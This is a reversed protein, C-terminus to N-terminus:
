ISPDINLDASVAGAATGNVATASVPAPETPTLEALRTDIATAADNFIWVFQPYRKTVYRKVLPLVAFRTQFIAAVWLSHLAMRYDHATLHSLRLVSFNAEAWLIGATAGVVHRLYSYVVKRSLKLNM